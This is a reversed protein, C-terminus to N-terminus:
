GGFLRAWFGKSREAELERRLEEAREREADARNREEDARARERELDERATSEAHATLELRGELRGLERQLDGRLRRKQVRLMDPGTEPRERAERPSRATGERRERAGGRTTADRYAHVSWVYVRWPKSADGGEHEGERDGSRLLQRVRGRTRDLVKAAAEV